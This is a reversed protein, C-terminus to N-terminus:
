GDTNTSRREEKEKESRLKQKWNNERSLQNLFYSIQSFFKELDNVVICQNDFYIFKEEVL